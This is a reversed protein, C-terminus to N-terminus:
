GGTLRTIERDPSKTIKHDQSQTNPYQKSKLDGRATGRTKAFIRVLEGAEAHLAELRDTPVYGAEILLELWHLTEDAEETVIGIKAVFEKRSRARRAARYNASISM